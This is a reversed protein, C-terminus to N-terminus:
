ASPMKDTDEPTVNKRDIIEIVKNFVAQGIELRDKVDMVETAAIFRINIFPEDYIM